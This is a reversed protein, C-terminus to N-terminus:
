RSEFLFEVSSPSLKVNRVTSPVKSLKLDVRGNGNKYFELYDLEVEFDEPAIKRYEDLTVSFSVEVQSPFFKVDINSPVNRATVPVEFTRETYEMVPIYIDVEGPVFKVGNVPMLKVRLQSTAKLNNILTYETVASQIESLQNQSGYATVTAPLFTVSDAVLNSRSTTIVGDFVVKLEKKQLKSTALSINVPYYAKLNTSQSLKERILQMLESGQLNKIREEKYRAIDIEISDKLTFTYRFIESGKDAVRIEIDDPLAVDFVEDDPIHTYKLPIKYTAEIDRQFFLMLWFIFSLILFLVFLFINKWNLRSFFDRIKEIWRDKISALDM